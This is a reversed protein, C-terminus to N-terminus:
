EGIEITHIGGRPAVRNFLGTGAQQRGPGGVRGPRADIRSDQLATLLAETLLVVAGAAAVATRHATGANLLSELLRAAEEELRSPAVGGETTSRPDRGDGSVVAAV